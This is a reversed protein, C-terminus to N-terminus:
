RREAYVGHRGECEFGEVSSGALQEIRAALM